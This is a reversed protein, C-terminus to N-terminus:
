CVDDDDMLSVSVLVVVFLFLFLFLLTTTMVPPFVPKPHMLALSIAAKDIFVSSSFPFSNEYETTM